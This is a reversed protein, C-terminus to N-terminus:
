EVHRLLAWTQEGVVGDTPAHDQRQLRKVQTETRPGFYGDIDGPSLKHRLLLCQVEAVDPGTSNLMVRHSMAASNGAFLLDARRTYACTYKGVKAAAGQGGGAKPHQADMVLLVSVVASLLLGGAAVSLAVVRIRPAEAEPADHATDSGATSGPDPATNWTREAADRLELLPAADEGAIRAIAEVATQPPLVKGNLYREWSSGSFPTKTQLSVLSLGSRDKLLRLQGVFRRGNADLSPPLARWRVVSGGGCCGGQPGPGM